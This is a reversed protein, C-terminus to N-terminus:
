KGEACEFEYGDEILEAHTRIKFEHEPQFGQNARNWTRVLYLHQMVDPDRTDWSVIDGEACSSGILSKVAETESGWTPLNAYSGEAADYWEDDLITALENISGAARAPVSTFEPM